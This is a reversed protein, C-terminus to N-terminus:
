VWSQTEQSEQGPAADMKWGHTPGGDDFRSVWAAAERLGSGSGAALSFPLHVPVEGSLGLSKRLKM